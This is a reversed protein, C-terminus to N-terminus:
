DRLRKRKKLERRKLRRLMASLKRSQKLESKSKRQQL